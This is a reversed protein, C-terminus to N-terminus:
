VKEWCDGLETDILWSSGVFINGITKSRDIVKVKQGVSYKAM